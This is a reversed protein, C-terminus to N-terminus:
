KTANVHFVGYQNVLGIRHKLWGFLIEAPQTRNKWEQFVKSQVRLPDKGRACMGRQETM